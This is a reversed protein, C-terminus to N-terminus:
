SQIVAKEGIRILLSQDICPCTKSLSVDSSKMSVTLFCCVIRSCDILNFCQHVDCATAFHCPPSCHKCSVHCGIRCEKLLLFTLLQSYFTKKGLHGSSLSWIYLLQMYCLRGIYYTLAQMSVEACRTALLKFNRALTPHWLETSAGM